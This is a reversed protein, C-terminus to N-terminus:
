VDLKAVGVNGSQAATPGRAQVSCGSEPHGTAKGQRPNCLRQGPGSLRVAYLEKGFRHM